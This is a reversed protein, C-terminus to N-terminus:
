VFIKAGILPRLTYQYARVAGRLLRAPVSPATAAPSSPTSATATM